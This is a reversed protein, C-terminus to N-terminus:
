GFAYMAGLRAHSMCCLPWICGQLKVNHVWASSNSYLMSTCPYLWSRCRAGESPSQPSFSCSVDRRARASGNSAPEDAAASAEEQHRRWTAYGQRPEVEGDLTNYSYVQLFVKSSMPAQMGSPADLVHQATLSDPSSRLALVAHRKHGDLYDLQTLTM